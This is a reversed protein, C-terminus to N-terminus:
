LLKLDEHLNDIGSDIVAVVVKKSILGKQSLFEYAKGLSIGQFGADAPDLQHWNSPTTKKESSPSKEETQATVKITVFTLLLLIYHKINM